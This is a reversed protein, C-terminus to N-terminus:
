RLAALFQRALDGPQRRNITENVMLWIVQSNDAPSLGLGDGVFSVRQDQPLGAGEPAGIKQALWVGPLALSPFAGSRLFGRRTVDM